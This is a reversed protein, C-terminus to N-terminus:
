SPRDESSEFLPILGDIRVLLHSREGPPHTSGVAGARGFALVALPTSSPLTSMGGGELPDAKSSGYLPILSLDCATSSDWQGGQQFHFFFEATHASRYSLAHAIIKRAEPPQGSGHGTMIVAPTVPCGQPFLRKM